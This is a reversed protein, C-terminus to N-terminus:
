YFLYPEIPIFYLVMIPLSKFLFLGFFDFFIHCFFICELIQVKNANFLFITLRQFLIKFSQSFLFITKGIYLFSISVIFGDNTHLYIIVKLIFEILIILINSFVACKMSKRHFFNLTVSSVRQYKINSFTIISM